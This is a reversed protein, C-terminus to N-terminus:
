GAPPRSSCARAATRRDQAGAPLQRGARRARPRPVAGAGGPGVGHDHQRGAEGPRRGADGHHRAAPRPRHGDGRRPPRLARRRPRRQPRGPALRDAGVLGAVGDHDRDFFAQRYAALSGDLSAADAEAMPPYWHYGAFVEDAGQGSQVVKVHERCRRASSTSPWATTASWPSPWPRRGRRGAGAADPRHRHPDPPPRHRLARRGPRLVPVRRGGGRRGVRLRDLLDGPRAPRGRGAPRRHPQLRRRGVAPVRGPVDAVLRREVALRLAALVADEWDRETWEARDARRTFDPRWWVEETRRGDPELASWRPRRCRACAACSRARRRCWRTSRDPLPAPRGPRDPHRRRGRRAARAPDVRVPHRGGDETLYLPKIGSGTAVWCCGGATASSSPSPSCATAAARRLPRGLPPLGQAAGRHRQALLVPLRPRDAGRAAALPQLHLRQVRRGPRARRRGDAPCRGRVPRHDAASPARPRRPGAVLRGRRGPRPRWRTPWPRWPRCTPHEADLRVEGTTGCM